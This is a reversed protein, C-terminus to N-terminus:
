WVCPADTKLVSGDAGYYIVETRLIYEAGGDVTWKVEAEWYKEKGNIPCSAILSESFDLDEDSNVAVATMNSIDCVPDSDSSYLAVTTKVVGTFVTLRNNAAAFISGESYKINIDMLVLLAGIAPKDEGRSRAYVGRSSFLSLFAIAAVSIVSLVVAKFRRQM